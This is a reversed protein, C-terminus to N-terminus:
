SDPAAHQEPVWFRFFDGGVARGVDIQWQDPPGYRDLNAEKWEKARSAADPPPFVAVCVLGDRRQGIV